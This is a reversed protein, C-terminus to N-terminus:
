TSSSPKTEITDPKAHGNQGGQSKGKPPNPPQSNLQDNAVSILGSLTIAKNPFYAEGIRLTVGLNDAVHSHMDRIITQAEEEPMEPLVIVFEDKEIAVLDCDRLNESLLSALRANVYRAAMKQQMERLLRNMQVGEADFEPRVVLLTLPHRFRRSRKVERYLDEDTASDYFMPPLGIQRFTMDEFTTEVNAIAEGLQRALIMSVVIALVETITLALAAGFMPLGLIFKLGAYSVLTGAMLLFFLARRTFVPLVVVLGAAIPVLVYVFSDINLPENIREINFFLFLWWVFIGLWIRLRFM